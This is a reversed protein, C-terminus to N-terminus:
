EANVNRLGNNKGCLLWLQPLKLMFVGMKLVPGGELRKIANAKRADCAPFNLCFPAMELSNIM